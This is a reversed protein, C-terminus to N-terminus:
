IRQVGKRLFSCLLLLTLDERLSVRIVFNLLFDMVEFKVIDWCFQWFAMSFGDSDHM